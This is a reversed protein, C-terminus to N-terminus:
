PDSSKLQVGTNGSADVGNRQNECVYEAIKMGPLHKLTIVWTWPKTFTKPDDITMRDEMTDKGTRRLREVLHMDESHPVGFASTKDTLAITDVVLTDGEWHGVSNGFYTPDPDPPHKENLHIIRYTGYFEFLVTVQDPTELIQLALEIPPHMMSPMGGPLCYSGNSAVPKGSQASKRRQAILEAAWPQYPIPEGDATQIKAEAGVPPGTRYDKFEPNNWVGSISGPGAIPPLTARPAVKKAPEVPAQALSPVACFCAIAAAVAYELHFSISVQRTM